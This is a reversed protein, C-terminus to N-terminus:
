VIVNFKRFTAFLFFLSIFDVCTIHIQFNMGYMEDALIGSLGFRRLQVLWSVGAWQYDRLTATSLAVNKVQTRESAVHDLNVLNTLRCLGKVIDVDCQVESKNIMYVQGGQSFVSNVLESAKQVAGAEGVRVQAASDSTSSSGTYTKELAPGAGESPHCARQRTQHKALACMPVLQRFVRVCPRRVRDDADGLGFLAAAFWLEFNILLAGCMRHTISSFIEAVAPRHVSINRTNGTELGALHLYVFSAVSQLMDVCVELPTESHILITCLIEVCVASNYESVFERSASCLVLELLGRENVISQRVGPKTASLGMLLLALAQESGAGKLNEAVFSFM